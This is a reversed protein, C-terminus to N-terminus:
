GVSFLTPGRSHTNLAYNFINRRARIDIFGHLDGIKVCETGPAFTLADNSSRYYNESM